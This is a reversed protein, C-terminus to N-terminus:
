DLGEDDEFKSALIARLDAFANEGMELGFLNVSGKERAQKVFADAFKMAIDKVQEEPIGRMLRGVMPSVLSQIMPEALFGLENWVNYSAPNVGLIGYMFKGIASETPINIKPLVSKAVNFGWESMAVSVKDISTM